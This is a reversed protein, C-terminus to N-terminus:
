NQQQILARKMLCLDFVDIKGDSCLDGAQWYTLNGACLLWKQLMVVDAVTFCGDLNVDGETPIYNYHITASTLCENGSAIEISNWEQESGLYYVDTISNCYAFANEDISTLTNPLTIAKLYKSSYFTEKNIITISKPLTISELVSWKFAKSNIDTITEPIIVIKAKAYGESLTSLLKTTFAYAGIISITKGNVTEPITFYERVGCNSIIGGKNRREEITVYEPINFIDDFGCYREISYGGNTYTGIEFPLDGIVKISYKRPKEEAYGAELYYFTGDALAIINRHGVGGYETNYSADNRIYQIGIRECMEAILDTSAWCDGYGYTVMWQWSQANGYSYFRAVYKTIAEIKDYETMNDFIIRDLIDDLQESANKGEISYNLIPEGIISFSCFYKKAYEQATSNEYGVIMGYFNGGGTGFYTEPHSYNWYEYYHSITGSTDYIICNPNEITLVKLNGCNFFALEGISTVYDPVTYETQDNASLYLLLTSRDKSFLAGNEFSFYPNDSDINFELLSSCGYFACTDIMSVNSPIYVSELSTCNMFAGYEISVLSTPFDLHKLSSCSSFLSKQITTVGESFAVRELSTCQSFAGNIINTASSPITISKLSTCGIFAEGCIKKVGEPFVVSILNSSYAFANPWITTVTSPIELSELNCEYFSYRNIHQVTDPISYNNTNKGIPYAILETKEKDFLVGDQSSLYPNDESVNIATLSVCGLFFDSPQIDMAYRERLGDGIIKVNDKINVQTLNACNQFVRTGLKTLLEPTTFVTLGNCARFAYSDIVTITDPLIIATLECHDFAYSGIETVPLGDIESPVEVKDISIDCDTIRIYDSYKRYTLYEFTDEIYEEANSEFQGSLQIYNTFSLSILVALIFSYIKTQKMSYGGIKGMYM